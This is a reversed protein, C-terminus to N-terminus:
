EEGEVSVNYGAKGLRFRVDELQRRSLYFRRIHKHRGLVRSVERLANLTEGEAYYLDGDKGFTVTPRHAAADAIVADLDVPKIVLTESEM